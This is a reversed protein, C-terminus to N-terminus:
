AGGSAPPRPEIPKLSAGASDRKPQEKVPQSPDHQNYYTPTDTAIAAEVQTGAPVIRSGYRRAFVQTFEAGFMVIQASYYVWLLLLVFSGAAGYVSTASTSGLYLSLAFQGIVFLLSTISAGVLVDRWEIVAKPLFKYISAFLLTTIGFSVIFSLLQSLFELGPLTSDIMSGIAAVATTLVLSILLLFGVVLIMGLSLLKNKLFAVVGGQQPPINWITNLSGELQAFVGTAGLLLTVVGVITALLSGEARNANQILDQIVQAADPGVAGQIQGVIEGRAAEEGFVAGVVGIIVILLPAISFATYYALAAALRPANDRNWEQFTELLLSLLTRLVSM